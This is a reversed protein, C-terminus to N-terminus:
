VLKGLVRGQNVTVQLKPQVRGQTLPGLAQRPCSHLCEAECYHGATVHSARADVLFPIAAPCLINRCFFWFLVFDSGPRITILMANFGFTAQQFRQQYLM